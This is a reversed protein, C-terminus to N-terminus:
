LSWKTTDWYHKYLQNQGRYLSWRGILSVKQPGTTTAISTCTATNIILQTLCKAVISRRTNFGAGVCECDVCVSWM